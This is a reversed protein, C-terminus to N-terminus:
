ASVKPAAVKTKKEAIDLASLVGVAVFLGAGLGSWWQWNLPELVGGFFALTGLAAIFGNRHGTLINIM